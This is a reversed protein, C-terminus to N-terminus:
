AGISAWPTSGQSNLKKDLALELGTDWIERQTLPIVSKSLVSKAYDKFTFVM